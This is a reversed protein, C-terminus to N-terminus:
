REAVRFRSRCEVIPETSRVVPEWGQTISNELKAAVHYRVCPETRLTFTRQTPQNFGGRPALDVVVEHSGPPVVHQNRYIPNQGDVRNVFVPKLLYDATPAPDTTIISYPQEYPGVACGAALAAIALVLTRNM